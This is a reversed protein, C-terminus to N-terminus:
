LVGIMLGFLRGGTRVMGAKVTASILGLTTTSVTGLFLSVGGTTKRCLFFREITGASEIIVTNNTVSSIKTAPMHPTSFCTVTVASPDPVIKYSKSGSKTAETMRDM